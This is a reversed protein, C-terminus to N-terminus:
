YQLFGMSSQAVQPDLEFNVLGHLGTRPRQNVLILYATKRKFVIQVFFDKLRKDADRRVTM